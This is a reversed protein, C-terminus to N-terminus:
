GKVVHITTKEGLKLVTLDGRKEIPADASLKLVDIPNPPPLVVDGDLLLEGEQLSPDEDQLSQQPQHEPPPTLPTSDFSPQSDQNGEAIILSKKFQPYEDGSEADTTDLEDPVLSLTKPRKKKQQEEEKAEKALFLNPRKKTGPM